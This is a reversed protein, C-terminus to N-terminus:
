GAAKANSFHCRTDKSCFPTQPGWPCNPALLSPFFIKARCESRTRWETCDLAKEKLKSYVNMEKINNLLQKRRRERIGTVEIRGERQGEIILELFCIRHLVYGIWSSNM